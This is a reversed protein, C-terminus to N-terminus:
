ISHGFGTSGELLRNFSATDANAIETAASVYAAFEVPYCSSELPFATQIRRRTGLDECAVFIRMCARWFRPWLDGVPTTALEPERHSRLYSQVESATRAGAALAARRLRCLEAPEWCRVWYAAQAANELLQLPRREDELTAILKQLVARRGIAAILPHVLQSTMGDDLLLVAFIEESRAATWEPRETLTVGLQLRTSEILAYRRAAASDEAWDPVIPRRWGSHAAALLRDIRGQLDNETM